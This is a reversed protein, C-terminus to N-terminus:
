EKPVLLKQGVRLNDNKLSNIEKIRAVSTKFARAILFLSDGSRVAYEYCPGDYAAPTQKPASASPASPASQTARQIKVVQKSLEDVIEKRQDRIQTRVEERMEALASTLAAVQAKLADIEAQMAEVKRMRASLEEQNSQLTDVQGSVRQMEEYAQNRLFDEKAASAVAAVLGLAMALAMKFKTM